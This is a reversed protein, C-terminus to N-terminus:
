GPLTRIDVDTHVTDPIVNHKQGGHVVNPSISMHSCAHLWKGKFGGLSLATDWVKEPDNLAAKVEDELGPADLLGDWM